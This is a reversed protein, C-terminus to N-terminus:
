ETHLETYTWHLIYQATSEIYEQSNYRQAKDMCEGQICTNQKLIDLLKINMVPCVATWQLVNLKWYPLTVILIFTHLTTTIITSLFSNFHARASLTM